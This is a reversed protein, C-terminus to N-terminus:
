SGCTSDAELGISELKEATAVIEQISAYNGNILYEINAQPDIEHGAFIGDFQRRSLVEMPQQDDPKPATLKGVIQMERETMRAQVYNYACRCAEEREAHQSGSHQWTCSGIFNREQEPVWQASASLGLSGLATLAILPLTFKRM